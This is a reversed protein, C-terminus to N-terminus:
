IMNYQQHSSDQVVQSTYSGAFLPIFSGAKVPAPNRGDITHCTKWLILTNKRSSSDTHKKKLFPDIIISTWKKLHFFIFCVSLCLRVESKIFDVTKYGEIIKNPSVDLCRQTCVHVWQRFIKQKPSDSENFLHDSHSLSFGLGWFSVM